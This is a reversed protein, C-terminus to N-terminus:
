AVSRSGGLPDKRPAESQCLATMQESAAKSVQGYRVSARLRARADKLLYKTIYGSAGKAGETLKWNSFGLPWTSLHRKLVPPSNPAQHLLMHYHPLGSKHAEAVLLYRLSAGTQKRLRKLWLTIEKSIENHRAIFQEDDTGDEFETRSRALSALNARCRMRFHNDPSLTLTGFWSRQAEILETAARLRWIWYRAKLCPECKHCRTHLIVSRPIGYDSLRARQDGAWGPICPDARQERAYPNECDASIDWECQTLSVRTCGAELAKLVLARVELDKPTSTRM